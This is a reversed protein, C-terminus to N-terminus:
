IDVYIHMLYMVQQRHSSNLFRRFEKEFRNVVAVAANHLGQLIEIGICRSFDRTFRAALVAKGTGSGLDYFTGGKNPNIKRLVRFFSHYDVEGYILSKEENLAKKDREDKSLTKGMELSCKSFCENYFSFSEEEILDNIKDLFTADGTSQSEFRSLLIRVRSDRRLIM